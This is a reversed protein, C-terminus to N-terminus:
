IITSPVLPVETPQEKSQVVPLVVHFTTGENLGSTFNITGRHMEILWKCIPLGLGTGSTTRTNSSDAQAFPTFLKDFDEPAIGIGTDQVLLHLYENEAYARLRIEGEDTFKAANSLLNLVIQRLRIPDAEMEPLDDPIDWVFAVDEHILSRMTDRVPNIAEQLSIKEFSLAMKGAEIKAMDLIENILMLLHQGNTHISQLDEEQASTTPGDIGKLIIRSFGIISNLPTRLEHSMNTLFQTKLQDLQRLEENQQQTQQFLQANAIALSTQTGVSRLLQIDNEAYAHAKYSQVTILGVPNEEQVLQVWLTSQPQRGQLNLPVNQVLPAHADLMQPPTGRNLYEYVPEGPELIRPELVVQENEVMTFIPEYLNQNANFLALHFISNDLLRGVETYITQALLSLDLMRSINAQVQNLTILEQARHLAEDLLKLNELQTTLHDVITQAFQLNAHTFPREGGLADIALYGLLEQQSAAPILLAADAGFQTVHQQIAERPVKEMKPSLKIPKQERSLREFITDGLLPLHYPKDFAKSNSSAVLKGSGEGPEYIVFRCQFAGTYAQLERVTIDLADDRTIAQNLARGIRYLLDTQRLLRQNALIIAAQDALTRISQLSASAFANPTKHALLLTGLWDEDIYIPVIAAAHRGNQAFLRLSFPDIEPDTQADALIIVDTQTIRDSYRYKDRPFRHAPDVPIDDSSWHVPTILYDPAKPDAIIIQAVDAIDSAQAFDILTKYIEYANTAQGIRRSAAYLRNTEALNQETQAFLDANEIAIALQDTMSQLVTITERSFAGQQKSQVTLAGIIKQGAKLPLALEAQTDPLLPNPKFAVANKVNQEVHAAGTAVVTGVMSGGGIEQSHNLALQLKGAEGTGARLVATKSDADVLFLGVYYLNFRSRILEVVENILQERDLITTAARSVEAALRLQNSYARTTQVFQANNLASGMERILDRVFSQDEQPLTEIGPIRIQGFQNDGLQLPLVATDEMNEMTEDEPLTATANERVINLSDKDARAQLMAEPTNWISDLYRGHLIELEHARQQTQNLLYLNHWLAALNQAFTRVLILYEEYLDSDLHDHNAVMGGLLQQGVRLIISVIIGDQGNETEYIRVSEGKQTLATELQVATEEPANDGQHLFPATTTIVRWAADARDLAEYLTVHTIDLAQCIGTVADRLLSAEDSTQSLRANLQLIENLNDNRAKQADHLSIQRELQAHLARQLAAQSTEQYRQQVIERANALRELFSLQFDNLRRLVATDAQGQATRQLARMMQSATTIAMGQEALQTAVATIDAENAEFALYQQVVAVLQAAVAQGRRPSTLVGRNDIAHRVFANNLAAELVATDIATNVDSPATVKEQEQM